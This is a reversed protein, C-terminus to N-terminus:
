PVMRMWATITAPAPAEVARQLERVPALDAVARAPPALLVGHAEEGDVHHRQRLERRLLM